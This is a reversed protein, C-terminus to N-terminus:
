QPSAGLALGFVSDLTCDVGVGTTLSLKTKSFSDNSEIRKPIM